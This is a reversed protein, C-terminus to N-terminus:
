CICLSVAQHSCQPCKANYLNCMVHWHPMYVIFDHGCKQCKTTGKGVMQGCKVCSDTRDKRLSSRYELDTVEIQFEHKCDACRYQMKM